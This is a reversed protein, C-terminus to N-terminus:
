LDSWRLDSRRQGAHLMETRRVCQVGTKRLKGCCDGAYECIAINGGEIVLRKGNVITDAIKKRASDYIITVTARAVGMQAACQEQTM